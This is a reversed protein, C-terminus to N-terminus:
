GNGNVAVVFLLVGCFGLGTMIMASGSLRVAVVSSSLPGSVPVSVELRVASLTAGLLRARRILAVSGWRIPCVANGEM